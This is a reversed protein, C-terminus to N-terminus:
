ECASTQLRSASENWHTATIEEMKVKIARRSSRARRWNWGTQKRNDGGAAGSVHPARVRWWMQWPAPELTCFFTVCCMCLFHQSSEWIKVVNAAVAVFFIVLFNRNGYKWPARTKKKNQKKFEYAENFFVFFDSATKKPNVASTGTKWARCCWTGDSTLKNRFHLPTRLQHTGDWLPGKSMRPQGFDSIVLSQLLQQVLLPLRWRCQWQKQQEVDSAKPAHCSM